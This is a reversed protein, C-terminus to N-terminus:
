GAFIFSNTNKRGDHVVGRDFQWPHGLLMHCADMPVIDCWVKDEYNAGISFTILVRRDLTVNNGRQLLALSYPHPHSESSLSLKDFADAAIVNECSGSDVIFQCVKGNITCTSEFLTHRQLTDVDQKPSLFTRHLVLSNGVDGSLIEM